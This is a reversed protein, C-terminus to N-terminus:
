AVLEPFAGVVCGAIGFAIGVCMIIFDVDNLRHRRIFERM